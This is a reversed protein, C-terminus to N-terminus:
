RSGGVHIIMGMARVEAVLRSLDVKWLEWPILTTKKRIVRSVRLGPNTKLGSAQTIKSFGSSFTMLM